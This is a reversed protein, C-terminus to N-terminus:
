SNFIRCKKAYSRIERVKTSPVGNICFEGHEMCERVGDLYGDAPLALEM